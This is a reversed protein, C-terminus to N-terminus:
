RCDLCSVLPRKFLACPAASSSIVSGNCLVVLGGLRAGWLGAMSDALRAGGWRYIGDGIEESKPDIVALVMSDRRLHDVIMREVAPEM